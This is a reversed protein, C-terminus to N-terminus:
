WWFLELCQDPLLFRFKMMIINSRFQLGHCPQAPLMWFEKLEMFLRHYFEKVFLHHYRSTKTTITIIPYTNRHIKHSLIFVSRWYNKLYTNNENDPMINLTPGIDYVHDSGYNLVIPIQFFCGENRCAQQQNFETYNSPTPFFNNERYQGVFTLYFKLFGDASTLFDGLLTQLQVTPRYTQNFDHYIQILKNRVPSWQERYHRNNILTNGVWLHYFKQRKSLDPSATIQNLYLLWWNFMGGPLNFRLYFKLLHYSYSYPTCQYLCASAQNNIEQSKHCKYYNNFSPAQTPLLTLFCSFFLNNLVSKM